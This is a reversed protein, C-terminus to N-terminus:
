VLLTRVCGSLVLMIQSPLLSWQTFYVLIVKQSPSRDGYAASFYFECLGLSDWSCEWLASFMVSHGCLAPPFISTDLTGRPNSPVKIILTPLASWSYECRRDGYTAVYISIWELYIALLQVELTPWLTVTTFFVFDSRVAIGTLQLIPSCLECGSDGLRRVVAICLM